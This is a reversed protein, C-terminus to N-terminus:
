GSLQILLLHCSEMGTEAVSRLSILLRVATKHKIESKIKQWTTLDKETWDKTLLRVGRAVAGARAFIVSVSSGYM